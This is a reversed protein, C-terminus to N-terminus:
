WEAWHAREAIFQDLKKLQELGVAGQLDTMRLNFGPENFDPLEHPRPGRHRVEESVSAGHNRLRCLREVLREDNTTIMGGDGFCGMIKFPYFSNTSLIGFSGARRSDYTAGIAQASDEIIYLGHQRAIDLLPEM